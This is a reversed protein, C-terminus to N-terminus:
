CCRTTSVWNRVGIEDLLEYFEGVLDAKRDKAPVADRWSHLFRRLRTRAAGDLEFLREYDDLLTSEQVPSGRGYAGRWDVGTMWAFTQGVVRLMPNTSCGPGVAPNSRFTSPTSPMLSRGTRPEHASLSPWTGFAVGDDHLDLVKDAIWGAEAQETDTHWVVVEPAGGAPRYTGM